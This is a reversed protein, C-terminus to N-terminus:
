PPVDKSLETHKARAAELRARVEALRETMWHALTSEAPQRALEDTVTTEWRALFAIEDEIGERQLRRFSAVLSEGGTLLPRLQARFLEAVGPARLHKAARAASALEEEGLVLTFRKPRAM